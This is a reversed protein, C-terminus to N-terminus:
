RSKISFRLMSDPQAVRLMQSSRLYMLGAVFPILWVVRSQYRDYPESLAGCVFANVVIGIIVVLALRDLGNDEAAPNNRLLLVRLVYATASLLVIMVVASMLVVPLTDRWARTQEAADLYRSPLEQRYNGKDHDNVNFEVMSVMGIQFLTNRAMATIVGLPDYRLVALVFRFQEASLARRTDPDAPTFVGGKASDPSWLFIDATAAPLRDTVRCMVFGSDPCSEKLYAEGPGDAIVRAMLFPPRIPTVGFARTTAITFAADGAFAVLIGFFLGALGIWSARGRRLLRRTMYLAFLSLAILVHTSHFLLGASLLGVWAALCTRSMRGGYTILNAAALIAIGAFVDPMLRSAFFAMPTTFALFVVIASFAYPNFGTTNRLTLAIALLLAVAQLAISAWMMGYADGLRLLMGYYISRGLFPPRKNAESDGGVPVSVTQGSQNTLHPQSWESPHNTIKAVAVDAYRVYSLTDPYLFPGGNYIAPWLCCILLGAYIAAQRLSRLLHM